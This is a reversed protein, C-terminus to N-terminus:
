GKSVVAVVDRCASGILRVGLTSGQVNFAYNAEPLAISPRVGM